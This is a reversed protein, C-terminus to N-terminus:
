PEVDVVGPWQGVASPVLWDWTQGLSKHSKCPPAGNQKEVAHAIAERVRRRESEQTCCGDLVRLMKPLADRLPEVESIHWADKLAATAPLLAEAVVYRPSRTPGIPAGHKKGVIVLCTPWDAGGEPRVVVVNGKKDFWKERIRGGAQKDADDAPPRCGSGIGIGTVGTGEGGGRGASLLKDAAEADATRIRKSSSFFDDGDPRARRFWEKQYPVHKGQNMLERVKAVAEGDDTITPPVFPRLLSVSLWQAGAPPEPPQAPLCRVRATALGPSHHETATSGYLKFEITGKGLLRDDLPVGGAPVVYAKLVKLYDQPEVTTPMFKKLQGMAAAMHHFPAGVLSADPASLVTINELTWFNVTGVSLRVVPRGESLLSLHLQATAASNGDDVLRVM